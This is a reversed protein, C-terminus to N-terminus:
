RSAPARVTLTDLCSVLIAVTVKVMYVITRFGGISSEGGRRARMVVGVEALRYGNRALRVVADVEPYDPAYHEALFTTVERRAAFLGSTPDTITPM